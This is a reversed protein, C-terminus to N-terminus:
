DASITMFVIMVFLEHLISCHCITGITVVCFREVLNIKRNILMVLAPEAQFPCVQCDGAEGAMLFGPVPAEPFDAAAADITMLINVVSLDVFFIIRFGIACDTMIRGPPAVYGIIMCYWSERKGPFMCTDSTTGTVKFGVARAM